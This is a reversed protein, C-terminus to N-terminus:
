SGSSASPPPAWATTVANAMAARAWAVSARRPLRGHAPGARPEGLQGAQAGARRAGGLAQQGGVAVGDLAIAGLGAGGDLQGGAAQALGDGRDRVVGGAAGEDLLGGLVDVPQLPREPVQGVEGDGDLGVALPKAGAEGRVGEDIEGGPD